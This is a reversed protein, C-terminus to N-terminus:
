QIAYGYGRRSQIRDRGIKKRIRSILAEIANSDYGDPDDYVHDSLESQSIWCGPHHMLYSLVRFELASVPLPAGDIAVTRARPDLCLAGVNLLPSSRGLSRRIVARLRAVLEEPHYPKTIYDDAGADIADVRDRWLNRATLVVIPTDVAAARWHRLIDRGDIGPLGLDLVIADFRDHEGLFQADEGERSALSVFGAERLCLQIDESLVPDDEVVLVRM